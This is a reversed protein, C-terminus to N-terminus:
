DTPRSFCKNTEKKLPSPSTITRSNHQIAKIESKNWDMPMATAWFCRGRPWASYTLTLLRSANLSFSCASGPLRSRSAFTVDSTSDCSRFSQRVNLFVQNRCKFCAFFFAAQTKGLRFCALVTVRQGAQIMLNLGRKPTLASLGFIPTIYGLLHPSPLCCGAQQTINKAEINNEKSIEDDSPKM